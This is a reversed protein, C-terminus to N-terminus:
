SQGAQRGTMSEIDVRFVTTRDVAEDSVESAGGGYHRRIAELARRKEDRAEVFSARGFGIVSRYDVSGSCGKGPPGVAVGVDFEFCVNPNKRLFEIKRGHSRGHFFLAGEEYGFCLPVVYPRDGDAMALRCVLAGAIVDGIGKDDM